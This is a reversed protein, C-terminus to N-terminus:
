CSESPKFSKICHHIVGTVYRRFLENITPTCGAYHWSGNRYILSGYIETRPRPKYFVQYLDGEAKEVLYNEGLEEQISEAIAEGQEQINM